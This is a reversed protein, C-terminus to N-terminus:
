GRKRRMWGLMVLPLGMLAATAPIPVAQSSVSGAFNQVSYVSGDEGEFQSGVDLTTGFHTIDVFDGVSVAAGAATRTVLGGNRAFLLTGSIDFELLGNTAGGGFYVGNGFDPYIALGQPDSYTGLGSITLSHTLADVTPESSIDIYQESDSFTM